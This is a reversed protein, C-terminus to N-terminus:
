KPKVNLMFIPSQVFTPSVNEVSDDSAPGNRVAYYGVQQHPGDISRPGWVGASGDGTTHPTLEAAVLTVEAEPLADQLALASSVGVVGGGLVVVSPAM